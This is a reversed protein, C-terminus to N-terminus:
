RLGVQVAVDLADHRHAEDFEVFWLPELDLVQSLGLEAGGYGAFEAGVTLSM